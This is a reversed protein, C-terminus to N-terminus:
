PAEEQATDRPLPKDTGKLRTRLHALAHVLYWHVTRKAVGLQAAIDPPSMGHLRHLYFAQRCKPPLEQIFREVLKLQERALLITDPPVTEPAGRELESRILEGDSRRQFSRHRVRDIAINAATKFLYGSLFSTAGQTHLQLMRVYAEQAIDRAEDESSVRTLLFRILAQNHERYLQAMRARHPEDLDSQLPESGRQADPSAM